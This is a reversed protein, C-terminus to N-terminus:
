NAIAMKTSRFNNLKEITYTQEIATDLHAINKNIRALFQEDKIVREKKQSFSVNTIFLATLLLIHNKM